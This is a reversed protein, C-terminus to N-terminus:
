ISYGGPAIRRRKDSSSLYNPGPHSRKLSTWFSAFRRQNWREETLLLAGACDRIQRSYEASGHLKHKLVKTDLLDSHRRCGTRCACHYYRENKHFERIRAREDHTIVNM